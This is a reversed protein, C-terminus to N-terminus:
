PAIDSQAAYVDLDYVSAASVPPLGLVAEVTSSASAFSQSLRLNYGALLLVMVLGALAVPRFVQELWQALEDAYSAPAASLRQLVRAALWPSAAAEADTHAMQRLDFRLARLHEVEARLEPRRSLEEEFVRRDSEALRGELWKLTSELDRREM